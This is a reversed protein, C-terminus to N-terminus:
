KIGFQRLGSSPAFPIPKVHVNGRADIEGTDWHYDAADARVIVVGTTIEANGTLRFVEGDSDIRNAVFAAVIQSHESPWWQDVKATRAFAQIEPRPDNSQQCKRNASCVWRESQPRDQAVGPFWAVGALVLAFRRM